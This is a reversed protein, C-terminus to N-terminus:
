SGAAACSAGKEAARATRLVAPRRPPPPSPGRRRQQCSDCCILPGTRSQFRLLFHSLLARRPQYMETGSVAFLTELDVGPFGRAALSKAKGKAGLARACVALKGPVKGQPGSQPCRLGRRGPRLSAGRARPGAAAEPGTAGGAGRLWPHGRRRGRSGPCLQCGGRPAASGRGSRTASGSVWPLALEGPVRGPGEGDRAARRVGREQEVARPAARGGGGRLWAGGRGPLAEAGSRTGM